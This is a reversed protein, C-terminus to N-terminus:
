FREEKPLVPRRAQPSGHHHTPAIWGNHLPGFAPVTRLMERGPTELLFDTPPKWEMLSVATQGPEPHPRHSATRMWLGAAAFAVLCAVAALLVAPARRRVPARRAERRATFGPANAEEERRLAAFRDRLDRDNATM